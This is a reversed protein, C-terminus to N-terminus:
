ADGHKLLPRCDSGPMLIAKEGEKWRKDPAETNRGEKKTGDKKQIKKKTKKQQIDSPRYM